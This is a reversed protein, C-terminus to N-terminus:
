HIIIKQLMQGVRWHAAQLHTDSEEVEGDACHTGSEEEGGVACHTGSEEEGDACHVDAM